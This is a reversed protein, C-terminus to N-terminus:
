AVVFVVSVRKWFREKMRGYNIFLNKSTCFVLWKKQSWHPSHTHAFAYTCGHTSVQAWDGLAGNWRSRIRSSLSVYIDFAPKVLAHIFSGSLELNPMSLLCWGAQKRNEVLVLALLEQERAWVWGLLLEEFAHGWPSSACCTCTPVDWMFQMFGTVFRM